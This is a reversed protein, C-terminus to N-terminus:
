RVADANGKEKYINEVLHDFDLFKSNGSYLKFLWLKKMELQLLFIPLVSHISHIACLFCLSVLCCGPVAPGHLMIAQQKTERRKRPLM